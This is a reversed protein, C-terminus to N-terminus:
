LTTILKHPRNRAILFLLGESSNKLRIAPFIRKRRAGKLLASPHLILSMVVLTNLRTTVYMHPESFIPKFHFKTFSNM